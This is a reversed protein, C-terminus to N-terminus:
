IWRYDDKSYFPKWKCSCQIIPNLDHNPLIYVSEYRHWQTASICM